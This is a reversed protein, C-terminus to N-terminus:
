TFLSAVPADEWYRTYDIGVLDLLTSLVSRVSMAPGGITQLTQPDLGGVRRGGPIPGGMIPWCQNRSAPTGVHDSGEASNFGTAPDVNDRSFESVLVVVTRNWLPEGDANTLRHLAFHLGALQRGIDGADMPFLTREDSHTDYLYRMVSVAPVGLQVLRVAFATDLGWQGGFPGGNTVALLQQNTLGGLEADPAGLLDLAPHRLAQAYARSHLKADRVAGLYPAVHPARRALFREDRADRVPRAWAGREAQEGGLSKGTFEQASALAIPRFAALDGEGRGFNSLGLDFPPLVKDGGAYGPHDRHIMSLLGNRAGDDEFRGTTVSLDGVFHDVGVSMPSSPAHDVGALVSIDNAIAPVPPIETVGEIGFVPFAATGLIAGVGWQTGSAVDPAIGFPNHQLSVDAHFLPQSRLGGGAYLVIVADATGTAPGAFAKRPVFVWPAAGAALAGGAATRLFSRRHQKRTKM